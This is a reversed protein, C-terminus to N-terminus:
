VATVNKSLQDAFASDGAHTIAAQKHNPGKDEQDGLTENVGKVDATPSPFSIM